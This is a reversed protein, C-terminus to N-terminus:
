RMCSNLYDEIDEDSMEPWNERIGRRLTELYDECPENYQRIDTNTITKVEFGDMEGLTITDEYWGYLKNQHRGANERYVVHDFQDKTILYAVGLAHGRKTTDLFSVGKGQWSGSENGFYMGYPIDIPRVEVPPTTDRCPPHPRSAEFSGGQIYCMFREYLMNSGYSVYWVYEKWSSIKKLDSVDRLFVYVYAFTGEGNLTISECRKTYLSGEGELADISPMDELPVQYAEVIALGDGDVIAPYWGVDYMDYGALITTGLYTSNELYGHNGEGKMLTGYVLVQRQCFYETVSKIDDEYSEGWMGTYDSSLIKDKYSSVIKDIMEAFEPSLDSHLDIFEKVGAKMFINLAEIQGKFAEYGHGRLNKCTSMKLGKKLASEAKLTFSDSDTMYAKMLIATCLYTPTYIFDVVAEVPIKRSEFFKFSGDDDQFDIIIDLNKKWNADKFDAEEDLFDKLGAIMQFLEDFKPVNNIQKKLILENM